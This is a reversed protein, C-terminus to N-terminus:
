SRERTMGSCEPLRRTEGAAFGALPEPTSPARAARRSLVDGSALWPRQQEHRGPQLDRQPSPSESVDSLVFARRVCVSKREGVIRYRGATGSVTVVAPASWGTQAVLQHGVARYQQCAEWVYLSFRSALMSNGLYRVGCYMTGGRYGSWRAEVYRAVAPLVPRLESPTDSVRDRSDLAWAASAALIAVAAGLSWLWRWHNM